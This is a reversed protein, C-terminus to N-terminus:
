WPLLGGNGRSELYANIANETNKWLSQVQQADEASPHPRTVIGVPDLHSAKYKESRRRIVEAAAAFLSNKAGEDPTLFRWRILMWVWKPFISQAAATNVSGPNVSLVVIPVDQEDMKSQLGKTFHVNALKAHAYAIMDTTFLFRAFYRWYAPYYLVPQQFVDPRRFEIECSSPLLDKQVNSSVTVIRVDSGPDRAAAKLLPLVQNTFLFHGVHSILIVRNTVSHDSRLCCFSFGDPSTSSQLIRSGIPVVRQHCLVVLRQTTSKLM